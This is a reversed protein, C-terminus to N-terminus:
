KRANRILDAFQQAPDGTGATITRGEAPVQGGKRPEPLLAKISDAHEDIDEQTEGRLLETPVGTRKAAASKWGDVERASRLATAEREAAEAREILKQQESKQAEVARDFEAAKVANEKARKEQERAKTKWFEVTETPKLQQTQQETPEPSSPTETETTEAPAEITPEDPM